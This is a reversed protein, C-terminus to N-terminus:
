KTVAFAVNNSLKTDLGVALKKEYNELSIALRLRYFQVTLKATENALLFFITEATNM